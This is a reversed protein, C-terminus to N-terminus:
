LSLVQIKRNITGVFKFGVKKREINVIGLLERTVSTLNENIYFKNESDHIGIDRTTINKLKKRGDYVANRVRSSHFRVIISRQRCDAGSRPSGLWHAIDIDREKWSRSVYQTVKSALM